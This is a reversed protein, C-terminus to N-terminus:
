VARSEGLQDHRFLSDRERSVGAILEGGGPAQGGRLSGASAVQDEEAGAPLGDRVDSNDHIRACEHVRAAPDPESREILEIWQAFLIQCCLESTEPAASRPGLQCGSPPRLPSFRRSLM